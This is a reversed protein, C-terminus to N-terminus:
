AAQRGAEFRHALEADLLGADVGKVSLHGLKLVRENGTTM